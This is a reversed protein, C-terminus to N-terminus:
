TYLLDPMNCAAYQLNPVILCAPCGLNPLMSCLSMGFNLTLDRAATLSSSSARGTTSQGSAGRHKGIYLAKQLSYATHQGSFQYSIPLVFNSNNCRGFVTFRYEESEKATVLPILLLQEGTASASKFTDYVVCVQQVPSKDLQSDFAADSSQPVSYLRPNVFQGVCKNDQRVLVQLLM